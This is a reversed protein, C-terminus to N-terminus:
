VESKEFLDSLLKSLESEQNINELNEPTLHYARAKDNFPMKFPSKAFLPSDSFKIQEPLCSKDEYCRDTSSSLLSLNRTM